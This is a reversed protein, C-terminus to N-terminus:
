LGRGGGGGAGGGSFGGGGMGGRGIGGFSGTVTSVQRVVSYFHTYRLRRMLYFTIMPDSSGIFENPVITLGKFKDIFQESIGFAYAYPLINYFYSPDDKLLAKLKDKEVVELNHKFGQVYGYIDFTQKNLRLVRGGLLSVAVPAVYGWISVYYPDIVSFSYSSFVMIWSVLITVALVILWTVLAFWKQKTSTYKNTFRLACKYETVCALAGTLVFAVPEITWRIICNAVGLFILPLVSILALMMLKKRSKSEFRNNTGYDDRIQTSVDRIATGVRTNPKDLYVITDKDFMAKWIRAEKAPLLDTADEVKEVSIPKNDEDLNLKVFKKSAWSVIVASVDLPRISGYLVYKAEAPMMDKPPYFEVVSAPEVHNTMAFALLVAIAICVLAVVLSVTNITKYTTPTNFYGEPLNINITLGEGVNLLSVSGTIVNGSVAYDNFQTSDGFKGRYMSVGKADFDKPMTISFTVNNIEVPYDNGIINFYLNDNAFIYDCGVTLTYKITYNITQNNVVQDDKLLILMYGDEVYSRYYHTTSITDVVVDNNVKTRYTKGNDKYEALYSMPIARVWGHHVGNIEDGYTMTVNETVTYSNNENVVVNVDYSDYTYNNYSTAAQVISFSPKVLLGLSLIAILSLALWYRKKM